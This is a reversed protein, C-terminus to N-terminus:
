VVVELWVYNIERMLHMQFSLLRLVDRFLFLFPDINQDVRNNLSFKRTKQTDLKSPTAFSLYFILKLSVPIIKVHVM